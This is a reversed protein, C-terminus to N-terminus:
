MKLSVVTPIEMMWLINRLTPRNSWRRPFKKTTTKTVKWRECRHRVESQLNADHRRSNKPLNIMLVGRQKIASRKVKRVRCHREKRKSHFQLDFALALFFFLRPRCFSRRRLFDLFLHLIVDHKAQKPLSNPWTYWADRSHKEAASVGALAREAMLDQRYYFISKLHSLNFDGEATDPKEFTKRISRSYITKHAAM